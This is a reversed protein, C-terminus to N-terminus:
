SGGNMNDVRGASKAKKFMIGFIDIIFEIFEFLSIVSAGIYLGMLGGLNSLLAVEDFEPKETISEYNLESFYVRLRILNRRSDEVSGLQENIKKSRKSLRTFLKHQYAESPWASMSVAAQYTRDLCAQPCEDRCGLRDSDYESKVTNQCTLGNSTDVCLSLDDNDNPLTPDYCNCREMLNEQFCTRLCAEVSYAYGEYLLNMSTGNTCDTYKGGKRTVQKLRVGISSAYGPPIEIGQEEPFAVVDHPHVLVVAGSSETFTELYEDEEIFLTLLLGHSPGPRTSTLIETDNAGVNFSYCNGYKPNLVQTFNNPTCKLGAFTCEQIFDTKQHGVNSRVDSALTNMITTLNVDEIFDTDYDDYINDSEDWWAEDVQGDSIEAAWDFSDGTSNGESEEFVLFELHEQYEAGLEKLMSQRLPNINCITVAPFSLERFAVAIDYSVNFEYYKQIFTVAQWIFVGWALACIFVWILKGLMSKAAVFNSFGHATTSSGFQAAVEKMQSKRKQNEDAEREKGNSVKGNEVFTDMDMNRDM